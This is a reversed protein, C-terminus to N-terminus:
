SAIRSFIAPGVIQWLKKSEIYMRNKLNTAEADENEQVGGDNNNLCNSEVEHLLPQHLEEIRSVGAM